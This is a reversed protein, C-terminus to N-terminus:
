ITLITIWAWVVFLALASIVALLVGIMVLGILTDAILGATKQEKNM